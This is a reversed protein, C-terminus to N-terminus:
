SAAEAFAQVAEDPLGSLPGLKVGTARYIRLALRHNPIRRGNAIDYAYGGRAIGSDQLRKALSPNANDM